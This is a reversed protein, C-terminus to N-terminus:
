NVAAGTLRKKPKSGQDKMAESVGEKSGAKVAEKIDAATVPRATSGTAPAEEGFLYSKADRYDNKISETVEPVAALGMDIAPQLNSPAYARITGLTKRTGASTMNRLKDQNKLLAKAANRDVQREEEDALLRQGVESRGLATSTDGSRLQELRQQQSQITSRENEMGAVGGYDALGFMFRTVDSTAGGLANQARAFGLKKYHQALRAVAEFRLVRKGKLPGDKIVGEQQFGQGLIHQRTLYPIQEVAQLVRGYNESAVQPSLGMRKSMTSIVSAALGQGGEFNKLTPLLPTLIRQLGVFGSALNMEKAITQLKQFEAGVRQTPIGVNQWMQAGYATMEEIDEGTDAATRGLIRMMEISQEIGMNASRDLAGVQKGFGEQGLLTDKGFATFKDKLSQLSQGGRISMRAFQEDLAKVQDTAKRADFANLGHAAQAIDTAFAKIGDGIGKITTKLSGLGGNTKQAENGIGAFDGKILRLANRIENAGDLSIRTRAENATAM